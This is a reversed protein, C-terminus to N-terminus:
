CNNVLVQNNDLVKAFRLRDKEFADEVKKVKDIGSRYRMAKKLLQVDNYIEKANMHVLNAEQLFENANIAINENLEEIENDSLLGYDLKDLAEVMGRLKFAIVSFIESAQHLAALNMTAESPKETKFTSLKEQGM